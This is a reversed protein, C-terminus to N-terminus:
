GWHRLFVVVAPQESWLGGLRVARGEVDPLELAALRGSYTEAM